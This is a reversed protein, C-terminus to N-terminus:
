NSRQFSANPSSPSCQLVHLCSLLFRHFTFDRLPPIKALAGDLCGDPPARGHRPFPYSLSSAEGVTPKNPWNQKPNSPTFRSNQLALRTKPLNTPNTQQVTPLTHVSKRTSVTPGVLADAASALPPLGGCELPNPNMM